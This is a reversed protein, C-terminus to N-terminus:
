QGKVLRALVPVVAKRYAAGPNGGPGPKSQMRVAVIGPGPLVHVDTGLYGQAAFGRGESLDGELEVLVALHRRAQEADRTRVRGYAATYLARARQQDTLKGQELLREAVEAAERWAGARNQQVALALQTEVADQGVSPPAAVSVALCFAWGRLADQVMGTM